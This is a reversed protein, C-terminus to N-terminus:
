RSYLWARIYRTIFKLDVIRRDYSFATAANTLFEEYRRGSYFTHAGMVYAAALGTRELKRLEPELNADSFTKEIAKIRDRYMIDTERATNDEHQRYLTLRQPLYRFVMRQGAMRLWMEYDGCTKFDEDFYGAKILSERKVMVTSPMLVNKKVLTPFLNDDTLSLAIDHKDRAHRRKGTDFIKVLDTFVLDIRDDEKFVSVQRDIKDPLWLDDQDIFAVYKGKSHEVGTNRAASVDANQQRIVTKEGQVKEIVALSDDTSGDDVIIVELPRYTQEYVSLLCDRIYKEGNYLPIVVSVLPNHQEAAKV